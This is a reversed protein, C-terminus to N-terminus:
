VGAEALEASSEQLRFDAAISHIDLVDRVQGHIIASGLITRNRTGPALKVREEVIDLISEVVLGINRGDIAHVVVNVLRSDGSTQEAGVTLDELPMIEDRYQVVNRQGARELESREFEELRSVESLLIAAQSGQGLSVLLLTRRESAGDEATEEEKTEEARSSDGAIHARESIGPVDLILAVRGDGMITAGAFTDLGKLQKGLPKVVIEETDNIEDVVLGFTQRDAQLVVINMAEDPACAELRLEQNVYAIPLLNGRLRYVPAGAINEIGHSAHEGELRVLELLNVQPIAFRHGGSTVILAPIIALTLPIKLRLTTGRGFESTFDVTGGIKEINTKVVDMGVGRGSINTVSQATSFGPMFILNAAERDGMRAAQDSSILGRELARAKVREPDIGNGDDSIEINVQGGEHFARLSITGQAPKGAERRADPTEIGHDVSNRIVHTLPDKIAEIITRDLETEKGDMEVRIDKKCMVSLDRVIRPFKSWISGIPQMRTKMVNEQLETTILNLRQTTASFGSDEQTSGHQLIQNRALVLEGVLNMLKDLLGVDVRINEAIRRQKASAATASSPDPNAAPEPEEAVPEVPEAASQPEIAEEATPTGDSAPVPESPASDGEKLRTLTAVLETYDVDGEQGSTEIQDLIQRIADVMRLLASAIDRSVALEGDRLRSLLNEGTHSVQELKQFGFFGCTGKISHITRFISALLERSSHEELALLDSDLQDLGERSEILFEQVVDDLDSM